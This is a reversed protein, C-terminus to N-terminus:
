FRCDQISSCVIEHLFSHRCWFMDSLAYNIQMTNRAVAFTDHPEVYPTEGYLRSRKRCPQPDNRVTSHNRLQLICFEEHPTDTGEM